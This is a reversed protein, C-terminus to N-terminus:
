RAEEPVLTIAGRPCEAACIGCGKCHTLDIAYTGTRRDPTVAADPCFVYCNDCATCSGCTFCRRAEAVAHTWGIGAVVEDFSTTDTRSRTAIRPAHRFYFLNLDAATVRDAVGKDVLDCGRLHADIAAAARRGSGIADVVTGAGTAADGGAFIAARSTRAWRDARLGGNGAVAFTSLEAVDVEEGIAAFVHDAALTYSAGPIPEPRSRGSADREGPRMRQLEVGAVRGRNELFQLPAAWFLFRVGESTAQKVEDPHAPMDERSRRYVVTPEGGLRLAVRATDIATNGGGVVVVRGLLHRGIGANVDHLLDLGSRVGPLSEGPLRLRTPHQAGIALFVAAFASLDPAGKAGVHVGNAFAIGMRRLLALERALAPRALRYAPIGYRLMGGPELNQDLVTVPYGLRALQYACSLGAPGAGVVGVRRAQPPSDIREPDLRRRRAENAIAREIAQIAIPEDFAGRNCNVECPHYCVRGCVAPLPNHRRITDWAGQVDGEAARVIFTRVDTGAPCDLNCPSSRTPYQPRWARWNGITLMRTSRTSVAM